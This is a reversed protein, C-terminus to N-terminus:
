GRMKEWEPRTDMEQMQQRLDIIQDRLVAAQVRDGNARRREGSTNEKRIPLM